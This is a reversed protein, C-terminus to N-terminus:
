SDPADSGIPMKSQRSPPPSDSKSATQFSLVLEYWDYVIARGGFNEKYQALGANLYYGAQETSIGFDFYTRDSYVDGVLHDLVLDGAGTERGEDTSSIYQTHAVPGDAYVIVGAHMRSDRFAAFLRINEPFRQALLRIEAASHAPKTGHYRRLVYEEIAMFSEFDLSSQVTLGSKKAKNISWKRGKSYPLRRRLDITTSVDRRILRGGRAFLLYLDEEAPLRHYIRPVPKYVMRKFGERAYHDLMLDFVCSMLGITMKEDSVVGGFTLGAHSVVEDGIRCAPFVAVPRGDNFFLLSADAFRDAHYDMYDRCFLFVGNKSRLVLDDWTSRYDSTYLALTM